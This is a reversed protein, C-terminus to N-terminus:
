GFWSMCVMASFMWLMTHLCSLCSSALVVVVGVGLLNLCIFRFVEMMLVGLDVVGVCCSLALRCSCVIASSMWLMAWM